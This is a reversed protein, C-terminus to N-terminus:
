VYKKPVQRNRARARRMERPNAILPRYIEVRDCDRLRRNLKVVKGYIGVQSKGLDIEPFRELIGSAHIADFVTAGEPLEIGLILQEGPSAFAVDVRVSAEMPMM